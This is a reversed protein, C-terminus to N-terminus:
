LGGPTNATLDPTIPGRAFGSNSYAIIQYKDDNSTIDNRDFSFNMSIQNHENEPIMEGVHLHSALLFRVQFKAAFNDPRRPM